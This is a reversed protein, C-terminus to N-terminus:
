IRFARDGEVASGFARTLEPDLVERLSPKAYINIDIPLVFRKAMDLNQGIMRGEVILLGDDMM